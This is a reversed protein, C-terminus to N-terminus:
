VHHTPLVAGGDSFLIKGLLTRSGLMDVNKQYNDVGLYLSPHPYAQPPALYPSLWAVCPRLVEYSV